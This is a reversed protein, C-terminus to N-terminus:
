ERELRELVWLNDYSLDRSRFREEARLTRGDESLRYRM